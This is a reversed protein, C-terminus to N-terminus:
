DYNKHILRAGEATRIRAHCSEFGGSAAYSDCQDHDFKSFKGSEAANDGATSLRVSTRGSSDVTGSSLM